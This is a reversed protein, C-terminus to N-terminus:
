IRILYGPEVEQLGREKLAREAESPGYETTVFIIPKDMALSQLIAQQCFTSKGSGPPGVLLILNKPLVEQIQTLSVL